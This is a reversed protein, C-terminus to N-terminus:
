RCFWEMVDSGAKGDIVNGIANGKLTDNQKFWSISYTLQPLDAQENSFIFMEEKIKDPSIGRLTIYQTGAKAEGLWIRSYQEGNVAFGSINVTHLGKFQSLDIKENKDNLDFDWILNKM